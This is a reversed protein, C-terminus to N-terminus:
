AGNEPAVDASMKSPMRCEVGAGAFSSLGRRGTASSPMRSLVSSFSGSRRQWVAASSRASRFRRLRSRSEPRCARGRLLANRAGLRVRGRGLVARDRHEVEFILAARLFVLVEAVPDGFVDDRLERLDLLEFDKGARLHQREAVLRHGRLLHALLEAGGVHEFAGDAAGAVAHADGRLEHFGRRPVGDPGLAVVPLEFVHEGDLLFDRPADGLGQADRQRRLFFFGDRALGRFIRQGVVEVQASPAVRAALVHVVRRCINSCAM